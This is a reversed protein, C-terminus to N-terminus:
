ENMVEEIYGLKIMQRIHWRCTTPLIPIEPHNVCKIIAEDLTPKDIESIIQYMLARRAELGTSTSLRIERDGMPTKRFLNRQQKPMCEGVHGKWLYCETLEEKWVVEQLCREKREGQHIEDYHRLPPIKKHRNAWDTKRIRFDAINNPLITLKYGEKHFRPEMLQLNVAAQELIWTAIPPMVGKSLYMRMNKRYSKPENPFKYDIPFGMLLKYADASLCRGNMYWFSGGMIVPCLGNPDIFCMTGSAFGGIYKKFIEWKDKKRFKREWLITGLGTTRHPPDQPNFFFDMDEQTIDGSEIFKEKQRELLVECNGTAPGDEYKDIVEKVTKYRPEIRFTAEPEVRDKRLYLVWFRDRWQAGFMCGNELIRYLHYGRTDAFQQHIEWAGNLAGMVSEIAVGMANNRMAYDLVKKTCAFANSTLGKASKNKSTNALSFASCPPHAIVFVDSLDQEPWDKILEVYNLDPFNAKQIDLAFNADEYSGIIECGLQKAGITLSGAYSNIILTKM